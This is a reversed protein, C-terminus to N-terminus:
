ARKRLYKLVLLNVLMLVAAILAAVIAYPYVRLDKFFESYLLIAIFSMILLLVISFVAYIGDKKMFAKIVSYVSFVLIAFFIISFAESNSRFFRLYENKKFILHHSLGASRKAFRELYILIFSLILGILSNTLCIVYPLKKNISAM